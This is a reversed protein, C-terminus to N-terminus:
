PGMPLGPWAPALGYLERLTTGTYETRFLGRRQLEPVVHDVFADLGGPLTLPLVNFGDCAEGEYWREIEDAVSRATGVVLLHGSGAGLRTILERITLQGERATRLIVDARTRGGGIETTEIDPLPGDLPYGGMEHELLRTLQAIGSEVPLLGGLRALEAKADQETAGVVPVLGPLVIVEDPNRGATEARRKVDAYFDRACHFDSQATFVADAYQAAFTRGSDSSGAQVLLPRGQPSRPVNLPGHVQFHEGRYEVPHVKAPDIYLPAASDLVRADEEWSDWLRNVVDTFEAAVRYRDDHDRRAVTFNLAEDVYGSTVINWGARGASVHDLTAFRRALDYPANYSTSATAILGIRETACAIASLLTVPELFDRSVYRVNPSLALHDEFFVSDFKGREATQAYEIYLRPDLTRGPSTAPHRWSAEHHGTGLLFANLHLQGRSM